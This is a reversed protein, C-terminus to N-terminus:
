QDILIERYVVNKAVENYHANEKSKMLAFKLNRPSGVRSVGVYLQGHTFVKVSSQTLKIKM